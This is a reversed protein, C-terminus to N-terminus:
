SVVTNIILGHSRRSDTILNGMSLILATKADQNYPRVFETPTLWSDAHQVFELRESNLMFWAGGGAITTIGDHWAGSAPVDPDFVVEATKHAVTEFGLDAAKLSQFRVNPVALAEYAEYNSQTTLELDVKSRDVRIQNYLNNLSDIGDFTTLDVATTVSNSAWWSYTAYSIGALHTDTTSAGTPLAVGTDASGYQKANTTAPMVIGMLGIMDKGGNGNGSGYLMANLDDAVSLKLQDMKAQLLNILQASGANKKVEEGSITISGAHQAWPYEAWGMGEQPTVDILDYGSYSGVTDNFAFLLPRRIVTGGDVTVRSKMNLWALLINENSIQDRLVPRVKDLTTTVLVDFQDAYISAM